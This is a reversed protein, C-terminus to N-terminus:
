NSADIDSPPLRKRVREHAATYAAEINHTFIEAKFLPSRTINAALKQKISALLNPKTALDIARAEYDSVSEAILELLGLTTLLSGAMRSSFADGACTLLPLGAWLADSATTGANFPFTDLFLDALRYQALYTPYPARSAFILRSSNVGRNEAEQRLRHELEGNDGVLWLVSGDIQRLLRMWVDFWAPTIKYSNNFSCFVFAREPLGMETRSAPAGAIKRKSDNAQFTDPLYIIKESYFQRLHDTVVFRDAIIYDIYEAGMTAPYGLYNIQIASPRYAFISPRCRRTYGMLDVAIDVELSRLLKAVELDSQVSVDIFEEFSHKIRTLIESAVHTEYSIGITQFRKQDHSEIVGALLASAAHQGFDSSLYAVRIRNHDFLDGRWMAKNSVPYMKANFLRANKLQLEPSSSIALLAFPQSAIGKEISSALHRCDDDFNSWDCLQMKAHLRASEVRQLDPKLSLAKDCASFAESYRKLELLIVGRGLWAEALDPKLALAKDYAIVAEDYRMLSSLLNGRGVWAEALDPELVLAKDYAAFAEEFRKQETFINGVGLWANELNLNLALAKEYAAFAEDYQRLERHINGRGLWAEALNPELVLAEDYAAFAQDYRRQEICVNGCGLWAGALKPNFTLAKKYAALADDYRKLERLINGRGLWADALDSKLAIANEYAALALDHRRLKGYVNGENLWAEAYRPQLRLAHQFSALAEEYRKMGALVAGRENIAAIHNPAISLLKEFHALSEQMQGLKYRSIAGVYLLSVNSQDLQLGRQSVQLAVEYDGSQCLTTAYNEIFQINQPQLTLSRAMLPKALDFNGVSAEIVGLYQLAYINKPDRDVIQRYIKAAGKLDGARHLAFATQLQQDIVKSMNITLLQGAEVIDVETVEKTSRIAFAM